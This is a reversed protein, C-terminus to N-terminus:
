LEPCPPYIGLSEVVDVLEEYVSESGASDANETWAGCRDGRDFSGMYRIRGNPHYVRLEGDWAGDLLFGELELRGPDGEFSRYVAGTFPLGTAADVYISDRIELSELNRTEVRDCAALAAGVVLM